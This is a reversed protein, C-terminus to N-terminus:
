LQLTGQTINSNWYSLFLVLILVHSSQSSKFVMKQKSFQINFHFFFYFNLAEFPLITFWFLGKIACTKDCTNLLFRYFLLFLLAVCYDILFIVPKKIFFLNKKWIDNVCWLNVWKLHVATKTFECLPAVMVM